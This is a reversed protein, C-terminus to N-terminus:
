EKSFKGYKGDTLFIFTGIGCTALVYLGFIITARLRLGLTAFLLVVLAGIVACILWFWRYHGRFLRRFEMREEADHSPMKRLCKKDSATLIGSVFAETIAAPLLLMLVAYLTLERSASRNAVDYFVESCVTTKPYQQMVYDTFEQAEGTGTFVATDVERDPTETGAYYAKQRECFEEYTDASYRYVGRNSGEEYSLFAKRDSGLTLWLIHVERSIGVVKYETGDVTITAGSWNDPDIGYAVAANESLVAERAGDKPLTGSKVAYNLTDKWDDGARNGALFAEPISYVEVSGDKEAASMIEGVKAADTLYVDKVSFKGALAPVDEFKIAFDQRGMGIELKQISRYESQWDESSEAVNYLVVTDAVAPEGVNYRMDLLYMMVGAFLTTFAFVVAAGVIAGRKWFLKRALSKFEM